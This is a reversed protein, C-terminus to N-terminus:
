GTICNNKVSHNLIKKVAAHRVDLLVGHVVFDTVRGPIVVARRAGPLQYGALTPPVAAAAARADSIDNKNQGVDVGRHEQERRGEGDM